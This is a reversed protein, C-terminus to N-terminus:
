QLEKRNTMEQKALNQLDLVQAKGEKCKEKVLVVFDEETIFVLNGTWAGATHYPKHQVTKKCFRTYRALEDYRCSKQM